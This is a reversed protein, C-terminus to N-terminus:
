WHERVAGALQLLRTRKRVRGAPRAVAAQGRLRLRGRADRDRDLFTVYVLKGDTAPTSSAYSNLRHKKELPANVVTQEWLIRGSARDLCLLIRDQTDERCSVLFIRDGWVIPSAHGKGPIPTKWVINQGEKGNWRIPM